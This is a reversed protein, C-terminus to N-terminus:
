SHMTILISRRRRQIGQVIQRHHRVLFATICVRTFDQPREMASEIPIVAGCGEFSYVVTAIVFLIDKINGSGGTVHSRFLLSSYVKLVIWNHLELKFQM